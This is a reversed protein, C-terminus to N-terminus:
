KDFPFILSDLGLGYKGTERIFLAELKDGASHALQGQDETLPPVEPYDDVTKTEKNQDTDTQEKPNKKDFKKDKKDLIPIDVLFYSENYEYPNAMFTVPIVGGVVGSAALKDVPIALEIWGKKYNRELYPRGHFDDFIRVLTDINERIAYGAELKVTKDGAYFPQFKAHRAMEYALSSNIKFTTTFSVEPYDKSSVTVEFQDGSKYLKTLEFNAINGIGDGYVLGSLKEFKQGDPTKLQIRMNMGLDKEIGPSFVFGVHKQGHDLTHEHNNFTSLRLHKIADQM